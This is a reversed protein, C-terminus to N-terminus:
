GRQTREGNPQALAAQLSALESAYLEVLASYDPAIRQQIAIAKPPCSRTSPM